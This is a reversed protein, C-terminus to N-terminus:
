KAKLPMVALTSSAKAVMVRGREGNAMVESETFVLSKGSRLVM